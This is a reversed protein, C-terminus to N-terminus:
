FGLVDDVHQGLGLTVHRVQEDLLAIGDAGALGM